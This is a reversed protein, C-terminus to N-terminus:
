ENKIQEAMAVTMVALVTVGGTKPSPNPTEIHRLVTYTKGAVQQLASSSVPLPAGFSEHHKLHPKEDSFNATSLFSGHLFLRDTIPVSPKPSRSAVSRLLPSFRMKLEFWVTLASTIPLTMLHPNPLKRQKKATKFSPAYLHLTSNQITFKSHPTTASSSWSKHLASAWLIPILFLVWVIVMGAFAECHKAIFPAACRGAYLTTAKPLATDFCDKIGEVIYAAEKPRLENLGVFKVDSTVWLRKSKLHFNKSRHPLAFARRCWFLLLRLLETRAQYLLPHITSRTNRRLTHREGICRWRHLAHPAYASVNLCNTLLSAM